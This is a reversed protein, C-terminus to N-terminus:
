PTDVGSGLILEALHREGIDAVEDWTKAWRIVGAKRRLISELWPAVAPSLAAIWRADAEVSEGGVGVEVDFGADDKAYGSVCWRGNDLTEEAHWRDTGAEVALDRVRDAAATLISSPDTM